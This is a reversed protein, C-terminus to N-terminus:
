YTPRRMYYREDAESNMLSFHPVHQSHTDFPSVAYASFIRREVDAALPEDDLTLEYDEWDEESNGYLEYEEDQYNSYRPGTM